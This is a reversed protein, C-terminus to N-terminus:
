EGEKPPESTPKRRRYFWDPHNQKAWEVLFMGVTMTEHGPPRFMAVTHSAQYEAPAGEGSEFMKRRYAQVVRRVAGTEFGWKLSAERLAAVEEATPGLKPYPRNAIDHTDIWAQMEAAKEASEFGIVRWDGERAEVRTLWHMYETNGAIRRCAAEVEESDVSRFPGSRKIFARHILRRKKQAFSNTTRRVM